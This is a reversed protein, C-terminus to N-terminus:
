KKRLSVSGGSIGRNWEGSGKSTAIGVEGQLVEGGGGMGWKRRRGTWPDGAAAGLFWVRGRRPDGSWRVGFALTLPMVHGCECVSKAAGDVVRADGEGALHALARVHRVQAVHEADGRKDDVVAAVFVLGDGAQEVVGDFVVALGVLDSSCVDSSWDSIRM